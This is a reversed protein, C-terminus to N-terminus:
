DNITMFLIVWENRQWKEQIILFHMNCYQESENTYQLYQKSSNIDELYWDSKNMNQLYQKNENLIHWDQEYMCFYQESKNM